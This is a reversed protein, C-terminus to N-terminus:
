ASGVLVGVPGTPRSSNPGPHYLSDTRTDNARLVPPVSTSKIHLIRTDMVECDIQMMVEFEKDKIVSDNINVAPLVLSMKPRSGKNHNTAPLLLHDRRFSVVYFTDGRRNIEDFFDTYVHHPGYYVQLESGSRKESSASYQLTVIQAVEGKKSSSRPITRARPHVGSGSRWSKTREAEHRHVWGRLESAMKMCKTKNLPPQCPPAPRLLPERKVVMLAKEEPVAEGPEQRHATHSPELEAASNSKTEPSFDLLHRSSPGPGAAMVPGSREELLIMPGVNFVLFILVVMLCVARRKPATAKLVTNESRLGELQRKLTGNECKLKENECLAVKLRAELTLLYEKKKRRSLSASERNKIMRQQRRSISSEQVWAGLAQVEQVWAGLAQVEQVWAGLAQVEQVWAGLAQVEQVWVGLAQVWADLAQVEQVWVGLAQVEQVWVGLAQVEQVWVGLAQVEDEDSPPTQFSVAVPLPPPAASSLHVPGDPALTPVTLVQTAMRQSPHLKLVQTPPSLLVSTGAPPAPQISLPPSKVMPLITTQVPQIIIAKAQLPSTVRPLPMTTILPKPQISVKPSVHIPRKVPQASKARTQSTKRVPKQELPLESFGSSDSCMSVPSPQSEPSLPSLADGYPSYPSRAEVSGPSSGSNLTRSPSLCDGSVDPSTSGSDGWGDSTWVPPDIDLNLDAASSAYDASVLAQLLEDADCLEDLEDFLSINELVFGSVTSGFPKWDRAERNEHGTDTAEGGRGGGSREAGSREGGGGGGGGGGGRAWPGASASGCASHLESTCPTSHLSIGSHKVALSWDARSVVSPPTRDSVHRLMDFRPLPFPLRKEDVSRRGPSSAERYDRETPAQRSGNNVSM